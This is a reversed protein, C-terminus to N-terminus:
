LALGEDFEDGPFHIELHGAEVGDARHDVEELCALQRRQRGEGGTL